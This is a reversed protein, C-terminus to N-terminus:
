AVKKARRAVLDSYLEAYQTAMRELSFNQMARKQANVGHSRRLEPDQLYRQLAETLAEVNRAPIMQGTVGHEILEPNGGVRTAVVPLGSAMAELITNSIGEAVSTLAFTDFAKLVMPVDRREGLLKVQDSIGLRVTLAEIQKRMPGDGVILLCAAAARESGVIAAFSKLLTEHDKVPDLRGVTGITFVSPDLGLLQRARDREGSAFRRIDVGNHICTIKQASIGVTQTLWRKLDDSVAIFRDVLPSLCKRVIIRKRNRGQPDAAEWGHEGHIVCPVRAMRAASIADISSWGRSHVIDPAIERFVRALKVIPFRFKDTPLRMELVSVDRGEIRQAMAGSKSLCLITHHFRDDLHNLLNVVGNELGGVGM